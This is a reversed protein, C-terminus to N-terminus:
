SRHEHLTSFVYKNFQDSNESTDSKPSLTKANKIMAILGNLKQAFSQFEDNKRIHVFDIQGDKLIRTVTREMAFIPGAVRHSIIIALVIIALIALCLFIIARSFIQQGIFMMTEEPVVSSIVPWVIAYVQAGVFACLMTTVVAIKIAFAIQYKSNILYNIRKNKM